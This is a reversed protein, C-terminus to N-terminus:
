MWRMFAKRAAVWEEPWSRRGNRRWWHMAWRSPPIWLPNTSLALAAQETDPDDNMSFIMIPVEPALGRLEKLTALGNSDPLNLDAIILAPRDRKSFRKTAQGLSRVVVVRVEAHM